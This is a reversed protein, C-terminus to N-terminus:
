SDLKEREQMIRDFVMDRARGVLEELRDDTLPISDERLDEPDKQQYWVSGLSALIEKRSEPQGLLKEQEEVLTRLVMDKEVLTDLGPLLAATKFDVSETWLFPTGTGLSQRLRKEISSTLEEKDQKEITRHLIGRGTIEWRVIYGDVSFDEDAVREIAPSFSDPGQSIIEQGRELIIEELSHLDKPSNENIPIEIKLWVVKSLPLFRVTLTLKSGAEVLLCGGLGQEGPDRGQPIGPFAVVPTETSCLCPHHIHGLAWYHINPVQRLNKLSCPVYNGSPTLSTHLMGINLIDGDPPLYGAYMKRTDSPNRYSQGYIRALPIQDSDYVTHVEAQRHPFVKVNSPMKYLDQAEGLPDHNGFIIFVPINKENLREMQSALFENARVSRVERDYLDGSILVFDVQFRLTSDVLKEVAKLSADRLTQRLDRSMAAATKLPSGLHFDACHLFRVKKSL